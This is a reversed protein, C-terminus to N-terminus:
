LMYIPMIPPWPAIYKDDVVLSPIHYVNYFYETTFAARLRSRESSTPVLIAPYVQQTTNSHLTYGHYLNLSTPSRCGTVVCGKKLRPESFLEQHLILV